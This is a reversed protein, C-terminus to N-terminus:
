ADEAEAEEDEEDDQLGLNEQIRCLAHLGCNECTKPYDRPNVDARGALFDSAMREIYDRWGMMEERTMPTRALGSNGKLNPLLTVKANGVRGEFSPEGTRVEAFALGGPIQDEGLGFQVYLPLQVDDPRPLEWSRPSVTGTKYDLILVTDDILRDVRDLRLALKLGAITAQTSFETEEVAFPVRTSEFTLWESTLDILRREELDLYRAPLRGRLAPKIESQMARRVHDAVFSRLGSRITAHLDAHSRLGTPPGAWVAHMVAHLLQGRQKLSLSAEAPEWKNADLRSTAFAKFPCQSQATLVSSGGQTTGLPFPIQSLDEIRVTKAKNVRPPLWAAPIPKPAGVRQPILRSPRSANGEVQSAYSFHVEPASAILRETIRACLDWDLQPTAHPMAADRQVEAPLLPHTTGTAPWQDENAGLFWIAGASLGASEAPGAIQIPANRSEPAFLTENLTRGLAGLFDHWAILRGDFGLSAATDIAQQLRSEAQFEASSLAHAGPWALDDLLRPILAAWEIPAQPRRNAERLRGQAQRIRTIWTAPLSATSSPAIFQEITWQPQELSRRRLFLMRAQLSQTEQESAAVRGTSFLWDLESEALPTSLWRLLLHAARALPVTALPVGLSFEFPPADVQAPFARRFAREIEGRKKSVDQSLVLVRANPDADLISRCWRACVALETSPDAASHFHIDKASDGSAIERCEGWASFFQQQTPTIRDFGALLLPPRSSAAPGKEFIGILELPLRAASILSQTRCAVEFEALWASFEAPDNQWGARASTRLQRPAYSCILEHAHMAMSALRHLPAPLFAAPSGGKRAIEAWVSQEQTSNLVLRGGSANKSTEELWTNHIFAKWDLINPAPWAKLGESQRTRHFDLTLARSARESSTVVIGGQRLWADVDSPPFQEMGANYAAHRPSRSHRQPLLRRDCPPQAFFGRGRYYVPGHHTSPTSAHHERNHHKGSATGSLIRVRLTSAILKELDVFQTAFHHSRIRRLAFHREVLRCDGAKHIRHGHGVLQLVCADQALQMRAIHDRGIHQHRLIRVSGRHEIVQHNHRLSPGVITGGDRIVHWGGAVRHGIELHAIFVPADNVQALKMTLRQQHCKDIRSARKRIEARAHRPIESLQVRPQRLLRRNVGLRVQKTHAEVRFVIRGITQTRVSRRVNAAVRFVCERVPIKGNRLLRNKVLHRLKEIDPNPILRVLGDRVRERRCQNTRIALHNRKIRAILPGDVLHHAIHLM